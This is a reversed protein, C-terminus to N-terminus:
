LISSSRGACEGDSIAEIAFILNNHANNLTFEIEADFKKFRKCVYFTAAYKAYFNLNKFIGNEHRNRIGRPCSRSIQIKNGNQNTEERCTRSDLGLYAYLFLDGPNLRHFM